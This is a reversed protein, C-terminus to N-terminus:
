GTWRRTTTAAAPGPWAPSSTRCGRRTGWAPDQRQQQTYADDDAQQRAEQREWAKGMEGILRSQLLATMRMVRAVRAFPMAAAEPSSTLASADEKALALSSPDTAQREIAEALRLAATSLAELREIQRILITQAWAFHAEPSSTVLPAPTYPRDLMISCIM